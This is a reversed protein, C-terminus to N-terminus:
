RLSEATMAKVVDYQMYDVNVLYDNKKNMAKSMLEIGGMGNDKVIRAMKRGDAVSVGRRGKIDIDTLSRGKSGGDGSLMWKGNKAEKTIDEPRVINHLCYTGKMPLCAELMGSHVLRSRPVGLKVIGDVIKAYFRPPVEPQGDVAYRLPGFENVPEFRRPKGKTRDIVRRYFNIHWSVRSDGYPGGPTYAIQPRAVAPTVFPRVEDPAMAQQAMMFPYGFKTTKDGKYSCYDDLSILPELDYKWLLALITDLRKWYAPNMGEASM